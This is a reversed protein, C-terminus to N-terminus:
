DLKFLYNKLYKIFPNLKEENEIKNLIINQFKIINKIDIFCLLEINKLIECAKFNLKKNTLGTQTLKGRIMKSFHFFCRTHILNKKFYKNNKIALGMAKEFDTHIIDPNFNFNIYIYDFIREYTINDLYKILIFLVINSIKNDDIGSIILLKYPHFKKPIIQFTVDMFYEKITNDKIKKINEDIGFLIIRQERSRKKNKIKIEYSIDLIYKKLNPVNLEIKGVLDYLNLYKYNDVIKTRIKTITVKNLLYKAKSCKSFENIIEANTIENKYLIMYKVFYKQIKYFTFDILM